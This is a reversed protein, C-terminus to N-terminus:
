IKMSIIHNLENLIEISGIDRKDSLIPTQEYESKKSSLLDGIIDVRSFVRYGICLHNSRVSEVLAGHIVIM